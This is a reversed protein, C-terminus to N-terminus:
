GRPPELAALGARAWATLRADCLPALIAAAARWHALAAARNGLRTMLGAIKGLTIGRFRDDGLREYVPLEEERRIRLAEDHEGRLDLIDAIQGRTLAISRVDGLHEYVPLECDRRIRLADDLQGRLILVDAVRGFTIAHSRADGLRELAPLSEDLYIRLAEDLRSAGSTLAAAKTASAALAIAYGAVSGAPSVVTPYVNADPWLDISCQARLFYDPDLRRVM